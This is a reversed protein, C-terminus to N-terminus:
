AGGPHVGHKERYQGPTLGENKKFIRILYSPQYRLLEAIEHIKMDTGCLLEKCKELRLRTVYDIFNVGTMQKFAKSLRPASMDLENAYQELSTETLYEAEIRKLLEEITGRLDADYAISLDKIFPRIVRHEFWDLMEDPESLAMLQDYMHGGEYLTYPNINYKIMADHIAGLLKMMGQHVMWETSDGSQLAQMFERTLRVAEDGLGMGVAQVIDRELEAPFRTHGASKHMFDSMDLVQNSTRVDRFRLAQRAQELAQPCETVKAIVKSLVITAKIRLVNNLAETFERALRGLREDQGSQRGLLPVTHDTPELVLFAGVTLDQFNIVQAMGIRESSLELLINSAAFTLLQDDRESFKDGLGTLGHLHAILFAFRKGEIDWQLRRLQSVIEQETHTYLQGQIFQLVFSERLTPIAEDIRASLAQREQVHATWQREIYAIEDTRRDDAAEEPRDRRGAEFMRKLRRIPAYLRQSAFWSLLLGILLGFGSITVILRSMSTVPATIQSLPTASVVTWRGGLKAIKGYSVSYPQRDSELIFTNEGLNEEIIRSRMAEALQLKGRSAMRDTPGTLYNGTEDLLFAVGEGSVLQQALSDLRAQDLYILFAGFSNHTQGGPLRVIVAKYATGPKNLKKLGYDWYIIEEKNLLSRLLSRDAETQVYVMGSEDGIVLDADKLYVAVSQILPNSETMLNLSKMLDKTTQFQDIFDMRALKDDFGPDFAVRVTFKELASLYDDIQQISQSLQAEHARNAEVGIRKTGVEYLIVGIFIMPICSILLVLGLNKWFMIGRGGGGTMAARM